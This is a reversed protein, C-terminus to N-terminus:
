EPENIPWFASVGDQPVVLLVGCHILLSRRADILRRIKELEEPTASAVVQKLKQGADDRLDQRIDVITSEDFVWPSYRVLRNGMVNAVTADGYGDLALSGFFHLDSLKQQRTLQSYAVCDNLFLSGKLAASVQGLSLEVTNLYIERFRSALITEKPFFDRLWVAFFLESPWHFQGQDDAVVLDVVDSQRRYEDLKAEKGGILEILRQLLERMPAVTQRVLNGTISQGEHSLTMGQLVELQGVDKRHIASPNSTIEELYNPVQMLKAATNSSYTSTVEVGLTRGSLTTLLFDPSESDVFVNALEKGFARVLHKREIAKDM